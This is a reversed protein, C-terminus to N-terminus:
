FAPAADLGFQTMPRRTWWQAVEAAPIPRSVLYGQIDDCGLQRLSRLQQGTEVGEAVTSLGLARALATISRVVVDSQPRSGLTDM